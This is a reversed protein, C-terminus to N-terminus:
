SPEQNRVMHYRVPKYFDATKEYPYAFLRRRTRHGSAQEFGWYHSAAETAWMEFLTVHRTRNTGEVCLLADGSRLDSRAILFAAGSLGITDLGGHINAPKGPIGWAM